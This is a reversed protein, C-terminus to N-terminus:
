AKIWGKALIGDITVQQTIADLDQIPVITWTNTTPDYGADTKPIKFDITDGQGAGM